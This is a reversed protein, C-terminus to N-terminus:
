LHTSRKCELFRKEELEGYKALTKTLGFEGGVGRVDVERGRKKVRSWKWLWLLSKRKKETM